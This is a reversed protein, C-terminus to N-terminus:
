AATVKKGILKGIAALLADEREKSTRLAAYEDVAKKADAALRKPTDLNTV